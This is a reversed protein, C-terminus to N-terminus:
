TSDGSPEARATNQEKCQAVVVAAAAAAGTTPKQECPNSGSTLTLQLRCSYIFLGALYPHWEKKILQAIYKQYFSGTNTVSLALREKNALFYSLTCPGTRSRFWNQLDLATLQLSQDTAIKQEDPIGKSGLLDLADHLKLLDHGIAEFFFANGHKLANYYPDTLTSFRQHPQILLNNLAMEQRFATFLRGDGCLIHVQLSPRTSDTQDPVLYHRLMYLVQVRQFDILDSTSKKQFYNYQLGLDTVQESVTYNVSLLLSRVHFCSEASQITPDAVINVPFIHGQESLRQQYSYITNHIQSMIGRIQNIGLRTLYSTKEDGTNVNLGHRILFLLIRSEPHVADPSVYQRNITSSKRFKQISNDVRFPMGYASFQYLPIKLTSTQEEVTAPIPIPSMLRNFSEFDTNAQILPLRYLYTRCTHMLMPLIHTIYEHKMEFYVINEFNKMKNQFHDKAFITDILATQIYNRMNSRGHYSRCKHFNAWEYYFDKRLHAHNVTIPINNMRIIQQLQLPEVGISTYHLTDGHALGTGSPLPFTPFGSPPRKKHIFNKIIHDFATLINGHSAIITIIHEPQQSKIPQLYERVFYLWRNRQKTADVCESLGSDQILETEFEFNNSLQLRINYLTEFARTQTSSVLKIPRTLPGLKEILGYITQNIKHGAMRAQYKGYRLLHSNPEDETYFYLGHRIFFIHHKSQSHVGYQEIRYPHMEGPRYNHGAKYIGPRIQSERSIPQNPTTEEAETLPMPMNGYEWNLNQHFQAAIIEIQDNNLLPYIDEIKPIYEM